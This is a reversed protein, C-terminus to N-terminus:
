QCSKCVGFFELRHHIEKYGKKKLGNEIKDLVCDHFSEIKKCIKCVIHHHHHNPDNFEYHVVDKDFFSSSLISCDVFQNLCRYVTAQDCSDIPLKKFIEEATFPGHESLLFALILKRSNTISLNKEKLLDRIKKDMKPQIKFFM